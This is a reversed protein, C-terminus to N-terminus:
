AGARARQRPEAAAGKLEDLKKVVAKAVGSASAPNQGTILFGDEVVHRNLPLLAASYEAGRQKLEDELNFPVAHDRHAAVEEKWSFGTVKRGKLLHNGDRLRVNLLGAPGHCVASVVKGSDFFSATLSALNKDEPFDFMVGHGGTMYIAVYDAANAEAIKMTTNLREMFSRDEYRRSVDGGMRMTSAIESLILSEPDIPVKGGQPSAINAEFGAEEIADLFHTLESLWLGTRYGAKQYQDTSTVVALVKEKM